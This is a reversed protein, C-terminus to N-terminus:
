TLGVLADLLAQNMPATGVAARFADPMDYGALPTVLVGRTRLMEVIPDAPGPTRACVFNAQSPLVKLGLHELGTVLRPREAHVVQLSREVHLVDSLAAAAAALAPGATGYPPRAAELLSALAPDMVGYGVRLGALGFLKSFTRLVVVRPRARVASMGDPFDSATAFEFYAEDLVVIVHPPIRDLFASLERRRVYTGTPNNPNSLFVIKTRRDVLAALAALDVRERRLPALLVERNAAQTARRFMVFSPWACVVTQGPLVFTRVLLDILETSGHAVVVHEEDVDHREALRAKLETGQPDPYRHASAMAAQAAEVALPSPGLVNENSHM